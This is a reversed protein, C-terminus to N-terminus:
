RVDRNQDAGLNGDATRTGTRYKTTSTLWLVLLAYSKVCFIAVPARAPIANPQNLLEASVALLGFFLGLALTLLLRVEDPYETWRSSTRMLLWVFGCLGLAINVVPLADMM